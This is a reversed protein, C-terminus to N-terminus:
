TAQSVAPAVSATESSGSAAGPTASSASRRPPTQLLPVTSQIGAPLSMATRIVEPGASPVGTPALFGLPLEHLAFAIVCNWFVTPTETRMYLLASRTGGPRSAGSQLLKRLDKLLAPWPVLTCWLPSDPGRKANSGEWHEDTCTISVNTLEREPLAKLQTHQHLAQEAEQVCQKCITTYTNPEACWGASVQRWTLEHKEARCKGAMTISLGPFISDLESLAASPVRSNDAPATTAPQTVGSMASSATASSGQRTTARRHGPSLATSLTATTTSTAAAMKGWFEAAAALTRMRMGPTVPTSPPMPASDSLDPSAASRASGGRPSPLSRRKSVARGGPTTPAPQLAARHAVFRQWEAAQSGSLHLQQVSPPAPPAPDNTFARFLASLMASDVLMGADHMAQMAELAKRVNGLRGALDLLVRYVAEDVPVADPGANESRLKAWVAWALDLAESRAFALQEAQLPNPSGLTPPMPSQVPMSRDLVPSQLSTEYGPSGVLAARVAANYVLFWATYVFSTLQGYQRPDDASFDGARAALIPALQEASAASVNRLVRAQTLADIPKKGTNAREQLGRLVSSEVWLAALGGQGLPRAIHHRALANAMGTADDHLAAVDRPPCFLAPNMTPWPSALYTQGAPLGEGSPAATIHSRKIAFETSRLFETDQHKNKLRGTLSRAAKEAVSQEWFAADVNAAYVLGRAYLAGPILTDHLFLSWASSGLLEHLFARNDSAAAKLFGASDFHVHKMMGRVRAGASGKSSTDMDTDLVIFRKYELFLSLFVRFFEYRVAEWDVARVEEDEAYESPPAVFQFADELHPLTTHQWDPDRRVCLDAHCSDRLARLLKTYHKPPLLEVSGSMLELKGHDLHVVVLNEPVDDFFVTNWVGTPVGLLYPSPSQLAGACGHPLVPIFTTAFKFPYILAGIVEATYTLLSLSSSVLVVHRDTVAAGVLQIITELPLAEFVPQFPINHPSLRHNVPPRSLVVTEGAADPPGLQVHVDMLGAPPLPVESCLNVIWREMPLPQPTLSLRYLERLMIRFEQFNWRSLMLLVRPAMLDDPLGALTREILAQGRPTPDLAWAVDSDPAPSESTEAPGDASDVEEPSASPAGQTGLLERPQPSVPPSASAAVAAALSQRQSDTLPEWITLAHGYMRQAQENTVVFTFISPVTGAGGSPGVSGAQRLHLGQPFCLGALGIPHPCPTDEHPIFPYQGLLSPVLCAQWAHSIPPSLDPADLEINQQLLGFTLWYHILRDGADTYGDDNM